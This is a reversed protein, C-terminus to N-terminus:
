AATPPDQEGTENPEVPDSPPKRHTWAHVVALDGLVLLVLVVILIVATSIGWEGLATVDFRTLPSGFPV